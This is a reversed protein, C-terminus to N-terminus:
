AYHPNAKDPDIGYRDIAEKLMAPKGKNDRLPAGQGALGILDRNVEFHKVLKYGFDACGSCVYM